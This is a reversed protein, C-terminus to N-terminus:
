QIVDFFCICHFLIITNHWLRWPFCMFTTSTTKFNLTKVLFTTIFMTGSNPKNKNDNPPKTISKNDGKSSMQTFIWRVLIFDMYLNLSLSYFFAVYIIMQNNL